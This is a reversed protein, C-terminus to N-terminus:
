DPKNKNVIAPRTGLVAEFDEALSQIARRVPEIEDPPQIIKVTADVVVNEATPSDPTAAYSIGGLLLLPFAGALIASLFARGIKRRAFTLFAHRCKVIARKM